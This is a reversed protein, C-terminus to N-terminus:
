FPAQLHPAIEALLARYRAQVKGLADQSDAEFRFSLRAETEVACMLGWADEYEARLGDITTLKAGGLLEVQESAKRLLDFQEGDRV